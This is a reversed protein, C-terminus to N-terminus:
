CTAVLPATRFFVDELQAFLRDSPALDRDRVAVLITRLRSEAAEILPKASDCGQDKARAFMEELASWVSDQSWVFPERSEGHGSVGEVEPEPIPVFLGLVILFILTLTFRTRPKM